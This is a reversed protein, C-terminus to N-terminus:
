SLSPTASCTPEVCEFGQHEHGIVLVGRNPGVGSADGGSRLVSLLKSCDKDKSTTSM